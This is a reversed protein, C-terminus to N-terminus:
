AKTWTPWCTSKATTNSHRSCGLSYRDYRLTIPAPHASLNVDPEAFVEGSTSPKVRQAKGRMGGRSKAWTSANLPGQGEPRPLRTIATQSPLEDDALKVRL